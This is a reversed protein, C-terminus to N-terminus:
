DAHICRRSLKMCINGRIQDCLVARRGSEYVELMVELGSIRCIFISVHRIKDEM